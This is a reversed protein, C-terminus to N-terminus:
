AVEDMLQHLIAVVKESKEDVQALGAEVMETDGIEKADMVKKIGQHMEEHEKGLEQMLPLEAYAQGEGYYWKGLVCATHDTATEYTVGIDMGDVFGRIKSKWAL